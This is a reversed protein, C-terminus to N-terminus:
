EGGGDFVARAKHQILTWEWGKMVTQRKALSVCLAGRLMEWLAEQTALLHQGFVEADCPWPEGCKVCRIDDLTRHWSLADKIQQNNM